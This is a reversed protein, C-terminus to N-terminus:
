ITIDKHIPVGGLYHDQVVKRFINKSFPGGMRLTEKQVAELYKMEKTSEYTIQGDPAVRSIEERLKREVEPHSFIYFIMMNFMNSTTDTGAFFFVKFEEYIDDLNYTEEDKGSKKSKYNEVLIAEIINKPEFSQGQEEISKNGISIRQQIFDM